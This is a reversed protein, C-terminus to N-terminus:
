RSTLMADASGSGGIGRIDYWISGCGCKEGCSEQITYVVVTFLQTSTANDGTAGIILYYFVLSPKVEINVACYLWSFNDSVLSFM